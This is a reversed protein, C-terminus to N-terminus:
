WFSVKSKRRQYVSSRKLDLSFPGDLEDFSSNRLPENNDPMFIYQSSASKHSETDDQEQLEYSQELASHLNETTRKDFSGNLIDEVTAYAYESAPQDDLTSPRLCDYTNLWPDNLFEDIDYRKRPDVELLHSVANKAGLSIGDWWPASFQYDGESIKKVLKSPDKEYFPPYGCLMTYLVCGIGWMDVKMSYEEFNFIEPATYEITGCPTKATNHSIIKALGFDTLKVLGIGGGGVGLKFEDGDVGYFPIPEFLLNEPKIDRHVIGMYHMHKISMAVQTIVHRALDESFSSMQIIKDFIEGGTVLESVLYFYTTSEQFSIFKVSYPNNESVMRHIAIENLISERNCPKIRDGDEAGNGYKEYEGFISKKKIVKIAVPIQEIGAVNVAKFVRSFAGDGIQNLLKYNCLESQEPFESEMVSYYTSSDSEDNLEFENPFVDSFYGVEQIDSDLFNDEENDSEGSPTDINVSLSSRRCDTSYTSHANDLNSAIRYIKNNDAESYTADPTQPRFCLGDAIFSQNKTTGKSM